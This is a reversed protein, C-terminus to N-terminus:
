SRQEMREEARCFPHCGGRTFDPSSPVWERVREWKGLLACVLFDASYLLKAGGSPRILMGVIEFNGDLNGELHSNRASLPEGIVADVAM